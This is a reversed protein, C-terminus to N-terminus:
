TTGNACCPAPPMAYIRLFPDCGNRHQAVGGPDNEELPMMTDPTTSVQSHHKIGGPDDDGEYDM